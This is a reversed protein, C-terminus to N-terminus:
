AYSALSAKARDAHLRLKEDKMNEVNEMWSVISNIGACEVVHQAGSAAGSINALVRACERRMGITNYNCDTDSCLPLLTKVFNEDKTLIDQCNPSSSLNALACVAHENCSEFEVKMLKMLAPICGCHMLMDHKSADASVNCFIQAASVQAEGVGSDAMSVVNRISKELRDQQVQQRPPPLSLRHEQAIESSSLFRNKISKFFQVFAFSDGSLRNCEVVFDGSQQCYINVEFKCRISGDLYVGEWRCKTDFFESSIKDQGRLENDIIAKIDDIGQGTIFSTTPSVYIPESPVRPHSSKAKPSSEKLTRSTAKVVEPKAFVSFNQSNHEIAVSESKVTVSRLPEVEMAGRLAGYSRYTADEYDHEDMLHSCIDEEKDFATEANENVSQLQLEDFELFHKDSTQRNSGGERVKQNM